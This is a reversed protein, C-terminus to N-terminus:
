NFTNLKQCELYFQELWKATTDIDYGALRIIDRTDPRDHPASLIREAWLEPQDLPLFECRGTINVEKPVADSCLCYLGAAQAEVLALGLGESLSPLIFVDVAQLLRDVDARVGTFVVRNSLGAQALSNEAKARLPGDGVWLLKAQIERKCLAKFIAITGEPNKVPKFSGVIGIVLESGFGMEKRIKKAMDPRFSFRDVDIANNLVIFDRHPFLWKGAEQSCAFCCDAYSEVKKCFKRKLWAMKKDRATLMSHSHGVTYRGFRRAVSFYVASITFYHGHIIQHEPHAELHRAWWRCYSIHNYVRYIPAEYIRGGLSRIEEEFAGTEPGHKVFDFQVRDRDLKRYLNMCMTEAGGRNLVSFVCLIRITKEM